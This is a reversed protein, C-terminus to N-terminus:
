DKWRYLRYKRNYWGSDRYSCIQPGLPYCQWFLDEPDLKGNPKVDRYFVSVQGGFHVLDGPMLPESVKLERVYPFIGQPGRYPVGHGTRRRAYIAASACDCGQRLDVQHGLGPILRPPLIFPLNMLESLYGFYDDSERLVIQVVRKPYLEYLPLSSTLTDPLAGPEFNGLLYTGASTFVDLINLPERKHFFRPIYDIKGMDFADKGTNPYEQQVPELLYWDGRNGLPLLQQAQDMRLEIVRQALIHGGSLILCLFFLPIRVMGM